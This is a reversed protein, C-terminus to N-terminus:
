IFLMDDNTNNKYLKRIQNMAPAENGDSLDLKNGLATTIGNCEEDYLFDKVSVIYPDRSNLQAKM